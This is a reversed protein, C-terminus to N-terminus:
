EHKTLKIVLEGKVNDNKIIRHYVNKNINVSEGKILPFPLQNDKQFLWGEGSIIEFTRDENDWHWKLEDTEVDIPFKRIFINEYLLDEKYPISSM